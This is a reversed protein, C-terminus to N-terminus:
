SLSSNTMNRKEGVKCTRPDVVTHRNRCEDSTLELSWGSYHQLALASVVRAQKMYMKLPILSSPVLNMDEDM